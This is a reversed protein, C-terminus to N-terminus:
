IAKQQCGFQVCMKMINSINDSYVKMFIHYGTAKTIAEAVPKTM